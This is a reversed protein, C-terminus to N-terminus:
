NRSNCVTVLHTLYNSKISSNELSFLMWVTKLILESFLDLISFMIKMLAAFSTFKIFNKNISLHNKRLSTDITFLLSIM